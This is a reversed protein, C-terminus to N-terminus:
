EGGKLYKETFWPYWDIDGEQQIWGAYNLPGNGNLARGWKKLFWWQSHKLIPNVAGVKQEIEQHQNVYTTDIAKSGIHTPIVDEIGISNHKFGWDHSESISVKDRDYNQWIRKLWDADGCYCGLYREDFWGVKQLVKKKLYFFQDGAPGWIFDYQHRGALIINKLREPDSILTDDQVCIMEDENKFGKLFINNWSRACYSTAEPDSLTNHLIQLQGNRHLEGNKDTLGIAPHNTFVRVDTWSSFADIQRNLAQPRNFTLIWTKM